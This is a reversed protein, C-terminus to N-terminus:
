LDGLIFLSSYLYMCYEKNNSLYFGKSYIGKYSNHHVFVYCDMYFSLYVYLLFIFIGRNIYPFLFAIRKEACPHKKYCYILLTILALIMLLGVFGFNLLVGLYENFPHKVNDALMSYRNLGYQRFYDAQYDMYRAEFSGIGHGLWPADKGYKCQM